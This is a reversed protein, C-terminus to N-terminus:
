PATEEGVYRVSRPAINRRRIQHTFVVVRDRSGSLLAQKLVCGAVQKLDFLTLSAM